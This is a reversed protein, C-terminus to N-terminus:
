LNSKKNNREISFYPVTPSFNHHILACFITWSWSEQPLQAASVQSNFHDGNLTLFNTPLEILSFKIILQLRRSSGERVIEKDIGRVGCSLINMFEYNSCILWDSSRRRALLRKSSNRLWFREVLLLLRLYQSPLECLSLPFDFPPHSLVALRRIYVARFLSWHHLPFLRRRPSIGKAKIQKGETWGSASTKPNNKM